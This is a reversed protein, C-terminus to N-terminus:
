TIKRYIEHYLAPKRDRAAPIARRAQVVRDADLQVFTLGEDSGARAIIEGFPDAAISGGVYRDVPTIGTTNIGIVFMQDELAHSRIFLEWADMRSAPWAAPVLVGDAGAGAYIHFLSSFRLDYCIAIGFEMDGVTFITIDDGPVYGKDEKQPSFLHMKKYTGIIGGNSGIVVAANYLSGNERLRFTGLVGIGYDESAKSLGSVIGGDTTEANKSSAPDWGTAFQEPFCILDAKNESAQGILPIVRKLTAEPDEWAPEVQAIAITVTVISVGNSKGTPISRYHGEKVTVQM